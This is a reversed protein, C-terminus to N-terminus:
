RELRRLLSALVPHVEPFAEKFEAQEIGNALTAEEVARRVIAETQDLFMVRTDFRHYTEKRISEYLAGLVPIPLLFADIDKLGLALANRMLMFGGILSFLVIVSGFVLGFLAVYGLFISAIVALIVLVEWVMLSVPIQAQRASFFWAEGFPASCVDFVIRERRIRLYQRDASLAGGESFEERTLELGPFKKAEIEKEIKGYFEEASFKGREVPVYWYRIVEPKKRKWIGFTPLQM